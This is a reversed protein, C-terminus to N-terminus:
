YNQGVPSQRPNVSAIDAMDPQATAGIVITAEVVAVANVLSGAPDAKVNWPRSLAFLKGTLPVASM